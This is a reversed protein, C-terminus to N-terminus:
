WLRALARRRATESVSPRSIRRRRAAALLVAAVAFAPVSLLDAVTLGHGRVPVWLVAGEYRGNVVLWLAGLCVLGAAVVLQLRASRRMALAAGAVTGALLLALVALAAPDAPAVTTPMGGM